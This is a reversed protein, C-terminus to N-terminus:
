NSSNSSTLAATPSSKSRRRRRRPRTPSWPTKKPRTKNRLRNKIFLSLTLKRHSVFDRPFSVLGLLPLRLLLSFHVFVARAFGRRSCGNAARARSYRTFFWAGRSSVTEGRKWGSWRNAKRLLFNARLETEKAARCMKEDADALLFFIRTFLFLFRGRARVRMRGGRAPKARHTPNRESNARPKIRKKDVRSCRYYVRVM